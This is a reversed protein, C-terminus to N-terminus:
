SALKLICKRVRAVRTRLSGCTAEIEDAVEGYSSGEVITQLVFWDREPISARIRQLVQEANLSDAMPDSSVLAEAEQDALRRLQAMRHRHLRETTAIMRSLDSELPETARTLISGLAAELGWSHQGLSTCGLLQRQIRAYTRWQHPLDAM